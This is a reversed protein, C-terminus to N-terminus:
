AQNRAPKGIPMGDACRPYSTVACISEHHRRRPNSSSRLLHLSLLRALFTGIWRITEKYSRKDQELQIQFGGIMSDGLSNSDWIEIFLPHGVEASVKTDLESWTARHGASNFERALLYTTRLIEGNADRIVLYPDIDTRNPLLDFVKASTLILTVESQEGTSLTREYDGMKIWQKLQAIRDPVFPVTENGSEIVFSILEPITRCHDFKSLIADANFDKSDPDLWASNAKIGSQLRALANVALKRM